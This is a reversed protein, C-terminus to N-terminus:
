FGEKRYLKKFIEFSKKSDRQIAQSLMDVSEFKEEIRLFEVFETKVTKGYIDESFDTIYSEALIEESGVTPKIGVNTTGCFVKGDPMTIMTSYVGFKPIVGGMPLRQNITPFGIKRGIQKGHIVEANINFYRGLMEKAKKVDGYAVANRIRTSSVPENEFYVEPVIELKVNYKECILKLFNIDGAAKKGFRFDSGCCLVKANFKKILIDEAFEKPTLNMFSSFDPCFIEEIGLNKMCATKEDETQIALSNKKKDPRTCRSMSFTFACPLIGEDKYSVAKKLVSAHGLHVGDFFGLAIARKDPSVTENLDHIIKM